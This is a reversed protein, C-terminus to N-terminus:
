KQMPQDISRVLLFQGLVLSVIGIVIYPLCVPSILLQVLEIIRHYIDIAGSITGPYYERTSFYNWGIELIAVHVAVIAGCILSIGMFGYGCYQKIKPLDLM